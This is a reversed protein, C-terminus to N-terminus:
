GKPYSRNGAATQFILGHEEGSLSLRRRKEALVSPGVSISGVKPTTFM